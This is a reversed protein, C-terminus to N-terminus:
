DSHRHWDFTFGLQEPEGSSLLRLLGQNELEECITMRQCMEEDNTSQSVLMWLSKLGYVLGQIMRSMNWGFLPVTDTDTREKRRERKNSGKDDDGTRESLLKKTNHPWIQSRSLDITGVTTSLLIGHEKPDETLCRDGYVEVGYNILYYLFGLAFQETQPGLFGFIGSMGDRENTDLIRGYRPICGEFDSLKLRNRDPLINKPRLDGHALHLSELFAVAQVLDSMWEIRLSLPELKEIKMVM